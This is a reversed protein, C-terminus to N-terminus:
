KKKGYRYRDMGRDQARNLVVGMLPTRNEFLRECARIDEATTKTGDAVLLVADVQPLMAIVDDSVLAPPLDYLAVEPDLQELMEALADATASEQLLEAADTVPTGNLGLALNRGVRLFHSELPQEGTLFDRLPGADAVGLLPALGPSRLELDMLVTRGSPRRSLSLALNAAVFSKGCGHTPSTIAIRKWGREALAQLIRTRLIDFAATAPNTSPQSFLGNGDLHGPNLTVATLSEWVRDPNPSSNFIPGSFPGPGTRHDVNLGAAGPVKGQRFLSVGTSRPKDAEEPRKGFRDGNMESHEVDVPRLAHTVLM